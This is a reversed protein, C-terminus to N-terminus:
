GRARRVKASALGGWAREVLGAIQEADAPALRVLV